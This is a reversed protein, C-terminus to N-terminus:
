FNHVEYIVVYGTFRYNLFSILVSLSRFLLAMYIFRLSHSVQLLDEPSSSNQLKMGWTKRCDETWSSQLAEYPM